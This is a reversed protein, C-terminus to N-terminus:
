VSCQPYFLQAEDASGSGPWLHGSPAGSVPGLLGLGTTLSVKLLALVAQGSWRSM